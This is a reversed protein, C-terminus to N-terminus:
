RAAHLENRRPPREMRGGSGGGTIRFNNQQVDHPFKTEFKKFNKKLNHGLDRRRGGASGRFLLGRSAPKTHFCIPPPPTPGVVKLVSSGSPTGVPHSGGVGPQPAGPCPPRGRRRPRQHPRLPPGPAHAVCGCGGRSGFGRAPSKPPCFASAMAVPVPTLLLAGQTL